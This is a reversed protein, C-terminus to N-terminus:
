GRQVKCCPMGKSSHKGSDACVAPLQCVKPSVDGLRSRKSMTQPWMTRSGHGTRTEPGKPTLIRTYDSLSCEMDWSARCSRLSYGSGIRHCGSTWSMAPTHRAHEELTLIEAPPVLSSGGQHESTKEIEEKSIGWSECYKVHLQMENSIHKM